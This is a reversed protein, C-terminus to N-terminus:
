EAAADAADADDGAAAAAVDAGGGDAGAAKMLADPKVSAELLICM